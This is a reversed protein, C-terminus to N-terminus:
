PSETQVGSSETIENNEQVTQSHSSQTQQGYQMASGYEMQEWAQNNWTSPVTASVGEIPSVM